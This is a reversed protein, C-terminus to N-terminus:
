QWRSLMVAVVVLLGGACMVRVPWVQEKLSEKTCAKWGLSFAFLGVAMVHGYTRELLQDFMAWIVQTWM